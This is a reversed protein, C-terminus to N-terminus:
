NLERIAEAVLLFSIRHLSTSELIPSCCLAAVNAKVNLEISPLLLFCLVRSSSVKVWQTNGTSGM